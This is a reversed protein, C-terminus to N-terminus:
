PPSPEGGAHGPFHTRLWNLGSRVGRGTLKGLLAQLAEGRILLRGGSLRAVLAPLGGGHFSLSIGAMITGSAFAVLGESLTFPKGTMVRTLFDALIAVSGSALVFACKEALFPTAREALFSAARGALGALLIAGDRMYLTIASSGWRLTEVAAAGAAMASERAAAFGAGFLRGLAGITGGLLFGTMLSLLSVRGTLLRSFCANIGSDIVGNILFSKLAGALGVRALGSSIFGALYSGLLTTAAAAGGVMLCGSFCRGFSFNDGSSVAYYIAFGVCGIAAAVMAALATALSIGLALAIALVVACVLIFACVAALLAQVYKNSFVWHLAAYVKDWATNLVQAAGRSLVAAARGVPALFRGALTLAPRLLRGALKSPAAIVSLAAGACRKGFSLVAGLARGLSSLLGGGRGLSQSVYYAVDAPGQGSPGLFLCKSPDWNGSLLLMPDFAQGNLWAGFHLHPASSSRDRSGDSWGLPQGRALREGRRVSTSALAIYTTKLNGAHEVSVCLGVPTSGCFSVTGEAACSVTSGASAGIDIGAHGGQGYHGATDRFGNIVPGSLPWQFFGAPQRSSPHGPAAAAAPAWGALPTILLAILLPISLLGVGPRRAPAPIDDFRGARKMRAATRYAL